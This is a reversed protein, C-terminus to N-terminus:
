QEANCRARADNLIAALMEDLHHQPEWDLLDRARSADGVFIALDNARMRTADHEIAIAVHSLRMLRHLIDSMRYPMGSAINLITGSRLQQARKVVLAYASAVDRVDLFDRQADLNGVRIVPPVIGAEIRAIQMAFAPIVFDETQGPGAHNFPRLRICKLGQGALAGLALDAAAKSASYEDIPSLLTSEDLLRGAQASDGYVTGSGINLLWCDPAERLIARALNLTGRVHVRWTPEPQANALAPAAVAALHLVHTPRISAIAKSVADCETIDLQLISGLLAHQGGVKGTLVIEASSGFDRRMAEVFYRGVFGSAGTVLVKM